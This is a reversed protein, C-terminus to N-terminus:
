SVRSVSLSRKSSSSSTPLVRLPRTVLKARKHRMLHLGVTRDRLVKPARGSYYNMSDCAAYIEIMLTDLRARGTEATLRDIFSEHENVLIALAAQMKAVRDAVSTRAWGAQAKRARAVMAAVDDANAVTFTTVETGDVPNDVRLRRRGGEPELETLYGM